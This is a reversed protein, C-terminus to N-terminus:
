DVLPQNRLRHRKPPYGTETAEFSFWFSLGQAVQPPELNWGFFGLWGFWGLSRGSGLGLRASSGSQCSWSSWPSPSASAEWSRRSPPSAARRGRAWSTSTRFRSWHWPLMDRNSQSPNTHPSKFGMEEDPLFFLCSPFVPTGKKKKSPRNFFFPFSTANQKPPSGAKQPTNLSFVPPSRSSGFRKQPEYVM